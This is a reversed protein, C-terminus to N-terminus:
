TFRRCEVRHEGSKVGFLLIDGGEFIRYFVSDLSDIVCLDVRLDSEIEGISESTKQTLVGINDHNSFDTIRFRGAKGDFGGNRTM